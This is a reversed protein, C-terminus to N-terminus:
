KKPADHMNRFSFVYIYYLVFFLPSIQERCCHVCLTLQYAKIGCFQHLEWIKTHDLFWWVGKVGSSRLRYWGLGTVGAFVLVAAGFSLGVRTTGFDKYPGIIVVCKSGAVRYHVGDLRQQEWNLLINM